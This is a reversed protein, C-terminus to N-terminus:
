RLLVIAAVLCIGGFVGKEAAALGVAVVVLMLSLASM